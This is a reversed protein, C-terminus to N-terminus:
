SASALARFSKPQLPHFSVHAVPPMAFRLSLPPTEEYDMEDSCYGEDDHYSQTYKKVILDMM